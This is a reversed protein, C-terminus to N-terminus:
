SLTTMLDISPATAGTLTYGLEVNTGVALQWTDGAAIETIPIFSDSTGSDRIGVTLTGGGLNAASSCIVHFNQTQPVAATRSNGSTSLLVVDAGDETILTRM